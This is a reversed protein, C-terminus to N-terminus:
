VDRALALGDVRSAGAELLPSAAARMTAGTTIVDDLLLVRAGALSAGSWAFAGRVNEQREQYGLGVQPRTRVSRLLGEAAPVNLARAVARALLQSQDYGRQRRRRAHLPVHAILDYRAPDLRAGDLLLGALSAARAHEERYKYRHITDRLPGEFLYLGRVSLAV